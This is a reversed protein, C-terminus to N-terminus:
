AMKQMRALLAGLRVPNAGFTEGNDGEHRGAPGRGARGTEVGGDLDMGPNDGRMAREQWRKFVILVPRFFDPVSGVEKGLYEEYTELLFEVNEERGDASGDVVGRIMELYELAEMDEKFQVEYAPELMDVRRAAGARPQQRLGPIGEPVPPEFWRMKREPIAQLLVAKLEEESLRETLLGMIFRLDPCSEM